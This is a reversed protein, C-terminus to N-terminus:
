TFQRHLFGAVAVHRVFPHFVEEVSERNGILQTVDGCEAHEPAVVGGFDCGKAFGHAHHRRQDRDFGVDVIM